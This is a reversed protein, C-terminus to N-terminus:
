AAKEEKKLRPTIVPTRPTSVTCRAYLALLKDKLKVGQIIEAHGPKLDFRVAKEFIKKLLRAQKAKVLALRFTEVAAADISMSTGFTGMIEYLIGRLIKSKEAHASGFKRIWDEALTKLEDLRKVHPETEALAKASIEAIKGKLSVMEEALSEVEAPSPPLNQSM